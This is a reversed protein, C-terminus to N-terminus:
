TTKQVRTNWKALLRTTDTLKPSHQAFSMLFSSFGVWLLWTGVFFPFFSTPKIVFCGFCIYLLGRGRFSYLFLLNLAVKEYFKVELFLLLFGFTLTYLHILIATQPENVLKLIELIESILFLLLSSLNIVHIVIDRKLYFSELAHVERPPGLLRDTNFPLNSPHLSSTNAMKM